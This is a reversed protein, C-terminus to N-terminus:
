VDGGTREKAAKEGIMRNFEISDDGIIDGINWALWMPVRVNTGDDTFNPNMSIKVSKKPSYESRYVALSPSKLNRDSKVEIPVNLSGFICVFDVEADNKSKWFFPTKRLAVLENLVYNEAAAGRFHKYEETNEFVFRTPVGSLARLLGVDVFYIKFNTEDSYASLPISPATIKKVKYVIGASILWELSHELDRGRKGKQVHSFIFRNNDKSLQQPISRWILTLENVEGGAHKSFDDVYTNLITRQIKEVSVIDHTSIWEHVAEPMGGVIQFYRYYEEMKSVFAKNIGGPGPNRLYECLREEGNALLFEYFTMPYMDLFNVKGVPFSYPGTLRVGLLSGACIIHYEPANENFYKLSTIARNCYQIEDFVILTDEPGISAELYIGIDRMIRCPDLDKEFHINLGPDKEFNLYIMKGYNSRGFEKILHTKGCQRVGKVLLPKRHPDSKWKLLQDYALRRM